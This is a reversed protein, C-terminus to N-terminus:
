TEPRDMERKAVAERDAKRKAQLERFFRVEQHNSRLAMRAERTLNVSAVLMLAVGVVALLTPLATLWRGFVVDLALILSTGVFSSSAVYLMTLANRIRDSRWELDELQDLFHAKREEPYDLEALGRDLRDAQDNLLRIRDVIRSMRNSTSIILSGNATMFLAPTLMASLTAYSTGLDPTPM